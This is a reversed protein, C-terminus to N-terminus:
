SIVRKLIRWAWFTVMLTILAAAVAQISAWLSLGLGLGSLDAGESLAEFGFESVVAWVSSFEWSQSTVGEWGQSGLEEGRAAITGVAAIFAILLAIALVIVALKLWDM